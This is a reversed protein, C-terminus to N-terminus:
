RLAFHGHRSFWFRAAHIDKKIKASLLCPSSFEMREAIKALFQVEIDLGYLRKKFDLIHVEVARDAQKGHKEHPTRLFAPAAGIYCVGRLRDSGLLVAVAYV